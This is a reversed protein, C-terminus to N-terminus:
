KAGVDLCVVKGPANRVYLRGNALVPQSWCKGDLVKARSIVEFKAPSAKAIILEGKSTLVILRDGAAM